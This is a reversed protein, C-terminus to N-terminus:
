ASSRLASSRAAGATCDHMILVGAPAAASGMMGAFTHMSYAQSMRAPAVQHSLLSYDAPHYVTNGLGIVAFTAILVWYSHMM